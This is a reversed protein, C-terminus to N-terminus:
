GIKPASDPLDAACECGIVDRAAARAVDATLASLEATRTSDETESVGAIGVSVELADKRVKSYPCDVFLEARNNGVYGSAPGLSLPTNDPKSADQQVSDWTFDPEQIRSYKIELDGGGGSLDCKGLGKSADAMFNMSSEEFAGSEPLLSEVHTGPVAEQCVRDPVSLAPKQDPLFLAVGVGAVVLVGMAAFM